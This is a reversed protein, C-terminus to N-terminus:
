QVGESGKAAFSIGEAKRAGGIGRPGWPHKRDLNSILSTTEHLNPDFESSSLPHSNGALEFSSLMMTVFKYKSLSSAETSTLFVKKAPPKLLPFTLKSGAIYSHLSDKSDMLVLASKLIRMSKLTLCHAAIDDHLTQVESEDAFLSTMTLAQQALTKLADNM